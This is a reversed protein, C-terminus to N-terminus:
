NGLHNRKVANSFFLSDHLSLFPDLIVAFDELVSAALDSATDNSSISSAAKTSLM